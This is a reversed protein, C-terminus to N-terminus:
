VVETVINLLFTFTRFSWVRAMVAYAPDLKLRGDWAIPHDTGCYGSCLMVLPIPTPTDTSALFVQAYSEAGGTGALTPGFQVGVLYGTETIVTRSAYDGAIIDLPYQNFPM